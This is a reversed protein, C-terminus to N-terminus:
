SVYMNDNCFCEYRLLLINPNTSSEGRLGFNWYYSGDEYTDRMPEEEASTTCQPVINGYPHLLALFFHDTSTDFTLDLINVVYVLMKGVKLPTKAIQEFILPHPAGASSDGSFSRAEHQAKLAELYARVVV